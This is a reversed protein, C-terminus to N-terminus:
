LSEISSDSIVELEEDHNSNTVLITEGLNPFQVTEEDNYLPNSTSSTVVSPLLNDIILNNQNIDVRNNISLTSFINNLSINDISNNSIFLNSIVNDISVNNNILNSAFNTYNHRRRVNRSRPTRRRAVRKRHFTRHDNDFLLNETEAIEFFLTEYNGYIYINNSNLIYLKVVPFFINKYVNKKEYCHKCYSSKIANTSLIMELFEEKYLEMDIYNLYDTVSKNMIKNYYTNYYTDVDFYCEKFNQIFSPIFGKARFYDLLQFYISISDKLNFPLGTYPNCIKKLDHNLYTYRDIDKISYKYLNIIDRVDFRYIKDNNQISIIFDNKEFDIMLLNQNNVYEKKEYKIRKYRSQVFNKIVILAEIYKNIQDYNKDVYFIMIKKNINEIMHSRKRINNRRVYKNHAKKFYSLLEEFDRNVKNNSSILIKFKGKNFNLDIPKNSITFSM